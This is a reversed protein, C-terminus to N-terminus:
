KARALEVMTMRQYDAVRKRLQQDTEGSCRELDYFAALRDLNQASAPGPFLHEFKLMHCEECLGGRAYRAIKKRDELDTRICEFCRIPPSPKFLPERYVNCLKGEVMAQGVYVLDQRLGETEDVCIATSNYEVAGRWDAQTPIPWPNERRAKRRYYRKLARKDREVTM